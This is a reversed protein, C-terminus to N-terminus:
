GLVVHYGERALAAAAAKGLGSTAGTVVCIPRGGGAHPRPRRRRPTDTRGRLFLLLYSYLLSLTWLVGMRWFEPSCVMRLAERDMTFSFRHTKCPPPPTLGGSFKHATSQIPPIGRPM